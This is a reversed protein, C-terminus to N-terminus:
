KPTFFDLIKTIKRLFSVAVYSSNYKTDTSICAAMFQVFDFIKKLYMNQIRFEGIKFCRYKELFTPAEFCPDRYNNGM